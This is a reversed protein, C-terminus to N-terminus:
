GRPHAKLHKIPAKVARHEADPLGFRFLTGQDSESWVEIEGGYNACIEKLAALGVGRGSLDSVSDQTSLGDSFIAEILHEKTEHPLKYRLAKEKVREWQIGAGDDELEIWTIKQADDRVARLTITARPSKGKTLREKPTEIGHDLANRLVHVFASWFDSKSDAPMRMNNDEIIIQVEKGIRKALMSTRQSLREFRRLLREERWGQLQQILETSNTQKRLLSMFHEFEAIDVEVSKTPSGLLRKLRHIVEGWARDLSVLDLLNWDAGEELQDELEHCLQSISDLGFLALNGKLTHLERKLQAEDQFTGGLLSQMRPKNESLFSEVSSRDQILQEFVKLFELQSRELRVRELHESIDTVTILMGRFVENLILPQYSFELTQQHVKCRKPLQELLLEFPLWGEQLEVWALEFRKSFLPDRRELLQTLRQFEKGQGFWAEFKKSRQNTLRGRQDVVLIGQDIHELILEFAQTASDPDPHLGFSQSTALM